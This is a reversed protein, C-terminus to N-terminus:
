QVPEIRTRYVRYPATNTIYLDMPTGDGQWNYHMPIWEQPEALLNTAYLVEYRYGSQTSPFRIRTQQGGAESYATFHPGYQRNITRSSTHPVSEQTQGDIALDSFYVNREWGGGANANYIRVQRVLAESTTALTGAFEESNATFRYAMAATLEFTLDLGGDTWEIETDRESDADKMFHNTTGGVFYFEFLDQGFRNQLGVGVAGGIDVWNNEFRMRFEDGVHLHDAFPRVAESVGGDRAWLGWAYPLTVQNTEGSALFHGATDGGSLEWGDGWGQGGDQGSTWNGAGMYLCMISTRIQLSM